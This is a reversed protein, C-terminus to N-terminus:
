CRTSCSIASVLKELKPVAPLLAQGDMGGHSGRDGTVEGMVAWPSMEISDLAVAM